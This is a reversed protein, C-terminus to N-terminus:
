GSTLTQPRSELLGRHGTFGNAVHDKVSSTAWCLPRVTSPVASTENEKDREREREREERETARERVRERERESAPYYLTRLVLLTAPQGTTSQM